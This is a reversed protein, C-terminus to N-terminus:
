NAKAPLLASVTKAPTEDVIFYIRQAPAPALSHERVEKLLREKRMCKLVTWKRAAGTFSSRDPRIPRSRSATAAGANIAWRSRMAPGILAARRNGKVPFRCGNARGVNSRPATSGDM